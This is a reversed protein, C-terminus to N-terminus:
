NNVQTPISRMVSAVGRLVYCESNSMYTDRRTKALVRDYVRIEVGEKKLLVRARPAVKRSVTSLLNNTYKRSEYDVGNLIEQLDLKKDKPKSRLIAQFSVQAIKVHGDLKKAYPYKYVVKPFWVLFVTVSKQHIFVTFETGEGGM